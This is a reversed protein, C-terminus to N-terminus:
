EEREESLGFIANKYKNYLFSIVLLTLGLSVFLITRPITDLEAADYFFLKILTVALLVIVHEGPLAPFKSLLSVTFPPLAPVCTTSRWHLPMMVFRSTCGLGTSSLVRTLSGLVILTVTVAAPAGVVNLEIVSSGAVVGSVITM